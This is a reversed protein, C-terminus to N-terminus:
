TKILFFQFKSRYNKNNYTSIVTIGRFRRRIAENSDEGERKMHKIKSLVTEECIVKTIPDVCLLVDIDHKRISTLKGHWLQIKAHPISTSTNPDFCHRGIQEFGLTTMAQRVILNLIQRYVGENFLIDRRFMFKISYQIGDHLTVPFCALPPDNLLFIINNGDYVHSGLQNQIRSILINRSKSCRLEPSFVLEYM